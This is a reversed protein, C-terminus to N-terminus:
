PSRSVDIWLTRSRIQGRRTARVRHRGPRQFALTVRGAATARVGVGGAWVWARAPRGEGADDFSRVTITVPDGPAVTRDSAAIGLTRQTAGTDPDFTAYYLLARDGARAPISGAGLSALRHGVKLAWFHSEDGALGAISRVFFGNWGGGCCDFWDLVVPFGARRKAKVLGGLVTEKRTTHSNGAADRLTGTAPVVTGGFVTRTPAEVRLDLEVAGATGAGPALLAIAAAAAAIHLRRPAL